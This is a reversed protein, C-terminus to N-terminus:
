ARSSAKGRTLRCIRAHGIPAPDRVVREHRARHVVHLLLGVPVACRHRLLVEHEILERRAAVLHCLNDETRHDIALVIRGARIITGPREQEREAERYVVAEATREAAGASEAVSAVDPHHAVQRVGSAGRYKGHAAIDARLVRGGGPPRLRDPVMTLRETQRSVGSADRHRQAALRRHGRTSEPGRERHGGRELERHEEIDLVIPKADRHPASHLGRTAIDGAIERGEAIEEHSIAVAGVGCLSFLQQHLRHVVHALTVTGGEYAERYRAQRAVRPWVVLPPVARVHLDGGIDRSVGQGPELREEHRRVEFWSLPLVDLLGRCAVRCASELARTRTRRRVRRADPAPDVGLSRCAVRGFCEASKGNAFPFREASGFSGLAFSRDHPEGLRHPARELGFQRAIRLEHHEAFIHSDLAAHMEHGLSQLLLKTGRPYEVRAQRLFSDDTAGDAHRNGPQHRHGFDLKPLIGVGGSFLQVVAAGHAPAGRIAEGRRNDYPHRAPEALVDAVRPVRDAAFHRPRMGDTPLHGNGRIGFVGSPQQARGHAACVRRDEELM